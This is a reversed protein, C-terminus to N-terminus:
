NIPAGQSRTKLTLYVDEPVLLCMAFNLTWTVISWFKVHNSVSPASYTLVLYTCVLFLAGYQILEYM